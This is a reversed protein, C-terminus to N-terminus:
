KNEESKQSLEYSARSIKAQSLNPCIEEAAAMLEDRAARFKRRLRDQIAGDTVHTDQFGLVRIAERAAERDNPQAGGHIRQLNFRAMLALAADDACLRRGRRETM